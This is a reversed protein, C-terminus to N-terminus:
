QPTQLPRPCFVRPWNSMSTRLSSHFAVGAPAAPAAGPAGQGLLRVQHTVTALAGRAALQALLVAFGWQVTVAAARVPNVPVPAAFFMFPGVAGTVPVPPRDAVPRM